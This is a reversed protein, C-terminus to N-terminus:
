VWLAEKKLTTEIWNEIEKTAPHDTNQIELMLFPLDSAVDADSLTPLFVVDGYNKIKDTLADCTGSQSYAVSTWVEEPLIVNGGFLYFGGDRAPGIVFKDKEQLIRHAKLILDQNLHPTDAGILLINKYVSQLTSYVHHLREGLDGDGQWLRGYHTWREDSLGEQEAVAWYPFVFSSPDSNFTSLTNHITQLCLEYFDSAAEKGITHALRTKPPTLEPTKVFVAIASTQGNQIRRLKEQEPKAQKTWLKYYLTTIRWWGQDRYKRASTKLIAKTSRLLIKNQRARWVFIHDEGYTVDEPFGGIREFNMKSLCFGQDGFPLGMWRSRIWCGIENIRMLPPGDKLFRLDFYYFANPNNNLAQILAILTSKTFRSDAHLFWLFDRTASREGENLQQARGPASDIWKVRSPIQTSPKKPGSFIIETGKPLDKLDAWLGAWAEEQPAIPVILSLNNLINKM